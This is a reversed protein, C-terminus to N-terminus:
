AKNELIKKIRRIENQIRTLENVKAIDTKNKTMALLDQILDYALCKLDTLPQNYGDDHVDDLVNILSLCQDLNLTPRSNM